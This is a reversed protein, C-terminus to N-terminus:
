YVVTLACANVFGADGDVYQGLQDLATVGLQETRFAYDHALPVAAEGWRAVSVSYRGRPLDIDLAFQYYNGASYNFATDAAYDSGNRVDIAGDPRFRVAVALDKFATPSGHSAGVVADISATNVWGYFELRLQGTRAPFQRSAWSGANSQTCASPSAYSFGCTEVSGQPPEVFRNMSDLRAVASQETRFALDEGLLEFPKNIADLHRVWATYKHAAVDTRLQFEYPGDGFTYPFAGVYGDGDRANIYGFDGFRVIPGLDTFRQAPGNSFGIVADITPPWPNGHLAPYVRFTSTFVGTSIPIFTDLWGAGATAVADCTGEGASSTGLASQVQATPEEADDAGSGCAGLALAGTLLVSLQVSAHGHRSM